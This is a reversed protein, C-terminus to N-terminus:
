RERWGERGAHPMGVVAEVAKVAESPRARAKSRGDAM